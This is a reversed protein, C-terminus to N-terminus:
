NFYIKSAALGVNFSSTQTGSSLDYILLNSQGSFNADTIFVNNGIVAMGYAYSATLDVTSTTPLVTDADSLSYVKNNLVYYLNGNAYTMLSPHEENAFAISSTLTNTSMDIKNISAETHGIVNYNADYLVDGESLVVLEGANNIIMEDPKDNLTITTVLDDIVNLVSVINNSGYAGKHSIFLKNGNSILQEPGLAVPVVNEVTNNSLDIVAIFDDTTNNPDGWNSVYGKGNSFTIFRPSSLGTSISGVKKFTYRNVVLITGSDIVLYALDGNFGISQFFSGIEEENVNFYVENETTTLDNSVFSVTGSTNFGGEGVILVGNEYDGLFQQTTVADDDNSCSFVVLSLALISLIIKKM